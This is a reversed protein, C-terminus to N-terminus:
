PAYHVQLREGAQQLLARVPMELVDTGTLARELVQWKDDGAILLHLHQASLLAPLNLSVRPELGGPAQMALAEPKGNVDLADALGTAHPFLSAIHGDDGMGLVCVDLPLLNAQVTQNVQQLDPDSGDPRYLPTFRANQVKELLAARLMHANSRPSDGDVKREDTLTVLVQEWPLNHNGLAQLFAQPTSGGAVALRAIGRSALAAQLQQTVADALQGAQQERNITKMLIM